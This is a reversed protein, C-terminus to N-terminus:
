PPTAHLPHTQRPPWNDRQSGLLENLHEVLDDAMEQPEQSRWEKPLRGLDRLAQLAEEKGRWSREILQDAVLQMVAGAHENLM